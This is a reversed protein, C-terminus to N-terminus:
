RKYHTAKPRHEPDDSSDSEFWVSRFDNRIERESPGYETWDPNPMALATELADPKPAPGFLEAVEWITLRNKFVEKAM